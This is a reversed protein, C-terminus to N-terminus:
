AHAALSPVCHLALSAVLMYAISCTFFVYPTRAVAQHVRGGQRGGDASHAANRATAAAAAAAAAAGRVGGCTSAPTAGEATTSSGTSDGSAGAEATAAGCWGGWRVRQMATAIAAADAVGVLDGRSSRVGQRGGGGGSAAAIIIITTSTAQKLKQAASRVAPTIGGAEPSVIDVGTSAGHASPAPQ